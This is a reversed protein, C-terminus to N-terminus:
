VNLNLLYHTQDCVTITACMAIFLQLLHWWLTRRGILGQGFDFRSLGDVTFSPNPVLKQFLSLTTRIIILIIMELMIMIMKLRPVRRVLLLRTIVTM